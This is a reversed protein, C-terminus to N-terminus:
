TPSAPAPRSATRSPSRGSPPPARTSCPTWTASACCRRATPTTARSRRRCRRASASSTPSSRVTAGLSACGTAGDLASRTSAPRRTAAATSTSSGSSTARPLRAGRGDVAARLRDTEAASSPTPSRCPRLDISTARAPLLNLRRAATRAWVTRAGAFVRRRCPPVHVDIEHALACRPSSCAKALRATATPSRSWATACLIRRSVSRASSAVCCASSSCRAPGGAAGRGPASQRRTTGAGRARRSRRPGALGALPHRVEAQQRGVLRRRGSPRLGTTSRSWSSRPKRRSDM